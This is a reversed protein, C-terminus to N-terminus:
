LRSSFDTPRFFKIYLQSQPHIISNDIILRKWRWDHELNNIQFMKIMGPNVCFPLFVFFSMFIRTSWVATNGVQTGHSITSYASPFELYKFYSFIELSLASINSNALSEVIKHYKPKTHRSALSRTYRPEFFTPFVAMCVLENALNPSLPAVISGFKKDNEVLKKNFKCIKIIFFVMEYYWM